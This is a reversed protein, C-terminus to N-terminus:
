GRRVWLIISNGVKRGDYFDVSKDREQKKKQELVEEREEVNWQENKKTAAGTNGGCSLLKVKWNNKRPLM